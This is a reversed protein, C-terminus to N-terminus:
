FIKYKPKQEKYLKWRIFDDLIIGILSIVWWYFTYLLCVQGNLNFTQNRYDWISFDKNIVIGTCYELITIVLCSITMQLWLPTKWSFIINILGILLFITGGLIGMSVTTRQRWLLEIIMYIISGIFFLSSYKILIKVLM